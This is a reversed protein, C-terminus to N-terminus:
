LGDGEAWCQNLFDVMDPLAIPQKFAKSAPRNALFSDYSAGNPIGQRKSVGYRRSSSSLSTLSLHSTTPSAGHDGHTGSGRRRGSRNGVNRWMERRKLWTRLAANADVGNRVNARWTTRSLGFDCGRMSGEDDDDEDDDESPTGSESASTGDARGVAAGSSSPAFRSRAMGPRRGGDDGRRRRASAKSSSSSAVSKGGDDDDGLARGLDRASSGFCASFMATTWHRRPTDGSFFGGREANARMSRHAHEDISRVCRDISRSSSRVCRDRCERAADRGCACRHSGRRGVTTDRSRTDFRSRDCADISACACGDIRSRSRDPHVRDIFM